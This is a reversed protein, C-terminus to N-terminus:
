DDGPRFLNRGGQIERRLANRKVDEPGARGSKYWFAGFFLSGAMFTLLAGILALVVPNKADLAVGIFCAVAGALAIAGSRALTAAPHDLDVFKV